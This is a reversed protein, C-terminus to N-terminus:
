VPNFTRRFLFTKLRSRFVALSGSDVTYSNLSNWVAPATCRFARDAFLTRTTPKQLLQHSSSRLHRAPIKPKIHRSLYSPTGTSRVKYTLVALKYDIRQHVPLWHLHELLPHAHTRRPAQLVIRAATNQVRQLKQISGTPAGHLLANCYDLRSLILSCALTVALETTLLHRIHRIAQLHYNCARAVTRAHSDFSLRRDLVVGLVKMEDSVALDVGAVSVSSVTSTAAQLQTTTGIALVESKDPNLQLGNQLYWQRIDATCAALVALGDTTNDAHMSLHLQTDDAYQHYKVGHELIVDAVPSCYVAFLLPGLVSGQPVGVDLQTTDSQHQGMKVFQERGGLYSRLWDLPTDTLGFESRLREILISHDVTDFAASLDLGILVSIQKDDAASYVGDLVELLATETSHGTRYASQYQSFNPSGLLHPRLRSLVLRELLKSITALNSIPRYNAPSSSDLGAKKLLPLVQARKFHSPFRGTQLSLNALRTIAPTFVDACSKLLSCPLVDLPSSKTPLSSLLRHVEDTTVPQFSSLTPGVHPRTSFERRASSQLASEINIRIKNIKDVFFRSFASALQKCDADNHIVKNNSHLLRQATRWTSKVDGSAAALEEKIHNARSRQISDRAARCAARYTRRDTELGTRRYRRESRRRLRKAQRAEDSLLRIDHQGQRRRRTQLPAHIDLVRRVETDFLQAYEDADSTTSDYLKSCLIDRRFATTDLKRIPRYSYTVTVPPTSPIGLCCTILHHDSFSVSSVSLQSVLSNSVDVDDDRTLVLDLINGGVHTASSVHQRLGYQIFVDTARRDLQGAISGPVNFDGVVASRCDLLTLQDFLDSLQDIFASTVEGPPRYICVVVISSQRGIIKVAMSEFQSYNCVDVATVKVSDSYVIAVGGGCRGTSPGRHRHLVSYGPPAIDLKIANPADSPIWTETLALVDLRHDAIVDHILAAKQRASRANLLGLATSSGATISSLPGPNYEVGGLLLLLAVVVAAPSRRHQPRYFRDATFHLRRDAVLTCLSSSVTVDASSRVCEHTVFTPGANRSTILGCLVFLVIPVLM